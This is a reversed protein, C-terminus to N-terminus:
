DFFDDLNVVRDFDDEKKGNYIPVVDVKGRYGESFLRSSLLTVAYDLPLEESRVGVRISDCNCADYLILISDYLNPIIGEVYDTMKFRDSVEM